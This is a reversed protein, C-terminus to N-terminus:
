VINSLTRCIKAHDVSREMFVSVDNEGVRKFLMTVNKGGILVNEIEGLDFTQSMEQVADKASSSLVAYEILKTPNNLDVSAARTNRLIYGVIGDDTKMEDLVARVREPTIERPRTRVFTVQPKSEKPRLDELNISIEEPTIKELKSKPQSKPM